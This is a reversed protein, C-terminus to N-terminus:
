DCGRAHVSGAGTELMARAAGRVDQLAATERMAPELSTPLCFRLLLTTTSGVVAVSACESCHCCPCTEVRHPCSGRMQMLKHLNKKLIVSLSQVETAKSSKASETANRMRPMARFACNRWCYELHPERATRAPPEVLRRISVARLVGIHFDEHAASHCQNRPQLLCDSPPNHTHAPTCFNLVLLRTAAAALCAPM